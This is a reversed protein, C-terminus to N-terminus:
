EQWYLLKIEAPPKSVIINSVPFMIALGAGNNVSDMPSFSFALVDSSFFCRLSFLFWVQFLYSCLRSQGSTSNRLLHARFGHPAVNLFFFISWVLPLLFGVKSSLFAGLRAVAQVTYDVISQSFNEADLHSSALALFPMGLSGRFTFVCGDGYRFATFGRSSRITIGKRLNAPSSSRFGGCCALITVIHEIRIKFCRSTVWGYGCRWLEWEMTRFAALRGSQIM